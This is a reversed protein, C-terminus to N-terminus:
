EAVAKGFEGRVRRPRGPWKLEHLFDKALIVEAHFTLADHVLREDRPEARLSGGNPRLLRNIVLAQIYNRAADSTTAFSESRHEIPDRCNCASAGSDALPFRSWSTPM